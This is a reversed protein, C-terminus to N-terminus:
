FSFGIKRKTSQWNRHQKKRWSSLKKKSGRFNKKQRNRWSGLKKKTGQWNKQQKRGWKLTKDANGYTYMNLLAKGPKGSKMDALAEDIGTVHKLKDNWLNKAKGSIGKKKWWRRILFVILFIGGIAVIGLGIYAKIPFILLLRM